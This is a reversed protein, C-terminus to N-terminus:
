KVAATVIYASTITAADIVENTTWQKDLLNIQRPDKLTPVGLVIEEAAIETITPIWSAADRCPSVL